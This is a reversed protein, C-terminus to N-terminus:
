MYQMTCITGATYIGYKPRYPQQVGSPPITLLFAVTGFEMACPGSYLICCTWNGPGLYM